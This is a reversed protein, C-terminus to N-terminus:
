REKRERKLTGQFVVTGGTLFPCFQDDATHVVCTSLCFHVRGDVGCAVVAPRLWGALVCPESLARQKLAAQAVCVSTRM